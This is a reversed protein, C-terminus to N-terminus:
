ATGRNGISITLDGLRLPCWAPIVHCDHVPATKALTVEGAKTLGPACCDGANPNGRSALISALSKRFFPCRACKDVTVKM